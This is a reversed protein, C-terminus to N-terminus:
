PGGRYTDIVEVSTASFTYTGPLGVQVIDSVDTTCTVTVTVTGGPGTGAALESADVVVNGPSDLNTCHIGADALNDQAVAEAASNAGGVTGAQSAARAAVSAATEVETEARSVRAAFMVLMLLALLAPTVLAVETPVSGRDRRCRDWRSL